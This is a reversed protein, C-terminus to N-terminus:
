RAEEKWERRKRELWAAEAALIAECEDLEEQTRRWLWFEYVLYGLVGLLAGTSIWEFVTDTM